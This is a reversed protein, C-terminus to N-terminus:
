TRTITIDGASRKRFGLVIALHRRYMIAALSVHTRRGRWWAKAHLGELRRQVIRRAPGVFRLPGVDRGNIRM